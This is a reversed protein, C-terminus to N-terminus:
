SREGVCIIDPVADHTQFINGGNAKIMQELDIKPKKLPTTSDTMVDGPGTLM